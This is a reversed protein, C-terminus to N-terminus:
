DCKIKKKPNKKNYEALVIPFEDDSCVVAGERLDGDSNDFCEQIREPTVKVGQDRVWDECMAVECNHIAKDMLKDCMKSNAQAASSIIFTAVSLGLILKKM